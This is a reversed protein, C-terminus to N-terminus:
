GYDRVVAALRPLRDEISYLVDTKAELVVQGRLFTRTAMRPAAPIDVYGTKHPAVENLLDVVQRRWKRADSQWQELHGMDDDETIEHVLRRGESLLMNLQGVVYDRGYRQRGGYVQEYNERLLAYLFAAALAGLTVAGPLALYRTMAWGAADGGLILLLALLARGNRWYGFFRGWTAGLLQWYFEGM